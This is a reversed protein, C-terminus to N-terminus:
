TSIGNDFYKQFLKKLDDLSFGSLDGIGKEQNQLQEVLAAGNGDQVRIRNLVSDQRLSRSSTLLVESLRNGPAIWTPSSGITEEAGVFFLFTGGEFIIGAVPHETAVSRHDLRRRNGYQFADGRGAALDRFKHEAKHLRRLYDNRSAQGMVEVLVPVRLPSEDINRVRSVCGEPRQTPEDRSEIHTRFMWCFRMGIEANTVGQKREARM